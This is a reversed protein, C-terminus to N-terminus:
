RISSDPADSKKQTHWVAALAFLFALMHGGQEFTWTRMFFLTLLFMLLAGFLASGTAMEQSTHSSRMLKRSMRVGRWGLWVLALAGFLGLEALYQLFVNHPSAYKVYLWLSESKVAPVIEEIFKFNGLGIGTLPSTLFGQFAGSWLLLRLRITGQPETFSEGVQQMRYGFEQLQSGGLALLVLVGLGVLLGIQRLARNATPYDGQTCKRKSALWVFPLVLLMALLPGRSHTAIVGLFLALVGASYWFRRTPRDEWIFFAMMMPMAAMFLIEYGVDAFGFVRTRGGNALWMVTNSLSLAAVFALFSDIAKRIGIAPVIEVLARYVIFIMANHFFPVWTSEIRYAFPISVLGAGIFLLLPADFRTRLFTMDARLLKHIAVAGILLFAGIDYGGLWVPGAPISFAAAQSLLFIGFCLPPFMLVAFLVLGGLYFLAFKQKDLAFLALSPLFALASLAILGQSVGNAAKTERTQM